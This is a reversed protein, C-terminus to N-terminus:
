AAYRFRHQYSCRLAKEFTVTYQKTTSKHLVCGAHPDQELRLGCQKAALLTQKLGPPIPLEVRLSQERVMQTLNAAIMALLLFTYNGYFKRSRLHTIQFAQDLQCFINEVDGARQLYAALVEAPSYQSGSLTTILCFCEPQKDPPLQQPDERYVVVRPVRLKCRKRRTRGDKCRKRTMGTLTTRGCDVALVDAKEARVIRCRKGGHQEWLRRATSSNYSKVLYGCSYRQLFRIFRVCGHNSDARVVMRRRNHGCLRHMFRKLMLMAWPVGHADAGTLEMELPWRNDLSVLHLRYGRRRRGDNMRGYSTGEYHKGEAPIGKDDVDVFVWRGAAEPGLVAQDSLPALLKSRLARVTQEDTAALSRSLTSAHPAPRDGLWHCLRSDHRLSFNWDTLRLCAQAQSALVSLCRAGPSFGSARRQINFPVQDLARLLDLGRLTQFYLESMVNASADCHDATM